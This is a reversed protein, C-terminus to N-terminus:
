PRIHGPRPDSRSPDFERPPLPHRGDKPHRTARPPHRTFGARDHRPRGVRTPAPRGAGPPDGDESPGFRDRRRVTPGLARSRRDPEQAPDPSGRGVDDLRDFEAAIIRPDAGLPNLYNVIFSRLRPDPTHRLLPVVEDAKGMRVLAIAARAQREALQDKVQESVVPRHWVSASVLPGDSTTRAASVCVPRYGQAILERCKKEHAAPDLGYLPVAEHSAASSWVAVYRRDAHGAKMIEAFAPLERIPGLAPHFSAMARALRADLDDPKAKLKREASEPAIQARERPSQIKDAGSVAIDLVLQDSQSALNEELTAEFQDRDSRGTIAADPARGWVACYRTHDDVARVAQRTKPVLKMKKLKDQVEDDEDATAGVYMRADDNAAKEVWLAAYRDAPRGDTGTAVYGAVDVPLFGEKRNRDDHKRTGEATEGHAIRWNRGDRTWTAAVRLVPGDAYPRFRIPRHGSKRFAEATTLFEDLPMTQCFAFRESLVGQAAEIRSVISVDPETWSPDLPPDNWAPTLKKHIEARLLPLMEQSQRDAIVYLIAFPNPEADLLLDALVDPQDSAYDAIVNTAFSRETEPRQKDRFIMSLSGLLRERIPRLTELLPAYHSPNKIVSALLRDTIFYSASLWRPENEDPVYGALACAACFREDANAQINELVGWLREVVAGQYGSLAQRIVPLENLDANLLRSYLYEARDPEVPLLAISAHLREKSNAAAGAVIQRLEPDTWRRHTGMTRVIEPVLPTEAKLLQQVIGSAHTAKNAEVVRQRIDLCVIALATFVCGLALGRLGHLRGVRKMMRRQPETWHKKKTLVRITAWELVSPLRRSEPKANWLTSREM